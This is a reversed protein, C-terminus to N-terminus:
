QGGKGKRKGPRVAAAPAAPAQRGSNDGSTTAAPMVAASPTAPTQTPALEGAGREVLWEAIPTALRAKPETLTLRRARGETYFTLRMPLLVSYPLPAIVTVEVAEIAKAPLPTPDPATAAARGGCNKCM